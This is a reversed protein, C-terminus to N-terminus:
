AGGGRRGEKPGVGHRGHRRPGGSVVADDGPHYQFPVLQWAHRGVRARAADKDHVVAEEMVVLLDLHDDLGGADDQVIQRWVGWVQVRYPRVARARRGGM